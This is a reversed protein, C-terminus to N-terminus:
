AGRALNGTEWPIAYGLQHMSQACHAVFTMREEATWTEWASSTSTQACSTPHYTEEELHTAPRESRALSMFDSIHDLEAAPNLKLNEHRVLLARPNEECWKAMPGASAWAACNREFGHSQFASHRQRSAVVELGSRVLNVVRANPLAHTLYSAADPFLNTFLMACGGAPIPGPGSSSRPFVLDYILTRFLDDHAEDTTQMAYRRSYETRNKHALQLIDFVVNHEHGTSVIGPHLALAKRLATTGSRGVGTLVLLPADEYPHPTHM